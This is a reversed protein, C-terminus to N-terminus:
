GEWFSKAVIITTFLSYCLSHKEPRRRGPTEHANGPFKLANLKSKSRHVVSFTDARDTWFGWAQCHDHVQLFVGAQKPCRLVVGSGTGQRIVPAGCRAREERSTPNWQHSGRLADPSDLTLPFSCQLGVDRSFRALYPAV